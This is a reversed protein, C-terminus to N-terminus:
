LLTIFPQQPHIFIISHFAQNECQLGKTLFPSPSWEQSVETNMQINEKMSCFVCLAVLAELASFDNLGPMM